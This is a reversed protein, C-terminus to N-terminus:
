EENKLCWAYGKAMRLEPDTFHNGENWELINKIGHADCLKQQERICDGVAAMTKNRTKEEKVGLSLYIKGTRPQRTQAYEMWGPFWVSPSVAAAASFIDTQYVSWLSFLGALSYGGLIVPIEPSLKYRDR